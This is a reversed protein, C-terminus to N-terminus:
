RMPIVVSLQHTTVRADQLTLPGSPAVIFDSSSLNVAGSAEDMRVPSWFTGPRGTGTTFRTVWHVDLGALDVSMGLSPTWEMWSESQNRKTRQIRDYQDLDYDISRIQVGAKFTAVRWQWSAGTRILANTFSFENEVTKQGAKITQGQIDLTDSAADAWTDSRIPELFVDAAFRAPGQTKAVGIGLAFAWTDGPDRPINQIEYNPIKPHDKRNATVSWGLNWGSAALPKRYALHAGWTDTHDLNKEERSAWQLVPITDPPIPEWVMNLYTVDHTMRVTSRFLVAELARGDSWEKLLGLRLDSTHGSQHIAGAQAYLLEVGDVAELDAYSGGLGLSIGKDPLRIGVMGFAYLNRNSSESLDQAPEPLPWAWSSWTPVDLFVPGFRDRRAGELEQLTLAGAGFWERGSFLVGLPLSKGSGNRDSISYFVPSGFFVTEPVRSGTAPNGFPDGLTDAHALGAGGMALSASPFLLFQDGSAVPVTKLQISQAVATDPLVTQLSLLILCFM